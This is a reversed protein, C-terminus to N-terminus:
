LCVRDRGAGKARYVAKDAADLFAEADAEASLAGLETVGISATVGPLHEGRLGSIATAAVAARLREAVDRANDISAGPLLVVFEEGGYRAIMDTPRLAGRLGDAVARLAHDGAVHGHRDNFPKFHDVDIVLLSLPTEDARSREMQRGLMKDLWHRNFLGTLADVSAVFRYHELEGRSRQIIRNGGRLRRALTRLLNSAVAHSSDTVIWLLDEDMAVVRAATAAVVFASAPERDIMSIEGVTAGAELTTIAEGDPAELHVGLSGSLLLFVRGAHTGREILVEGPSLTHVPCSRVVPELARVDASAFLELQELEELTIPQESM